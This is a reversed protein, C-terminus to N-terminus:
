LVFSTIRLEYRAGPYDSGARPPSAGAPPAPRPRAAAPPPPRRGMWAPHCPSRAVSLSISLAAACAPPSLRQATCASESRHLGSHGAPLALSIFAPTAKATSSAPGTPQLASRSRESLSFLIECVVLGFALHMSPVGGAYAGVSAGRHM